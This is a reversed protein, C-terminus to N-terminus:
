IQWCQTSWDHKEKLLPLCISPTLIYDKVVEILSYPIVDICVCRGYVTVETHLGQCPDM